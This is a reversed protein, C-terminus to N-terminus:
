SSRRMRARLVVAWVASAIWASAWTGAFVLGPVFTGFLKFMGFAVLFVIPTFLLLLRLYLRLAKRYSESLEASVAMRGSEVAKVM